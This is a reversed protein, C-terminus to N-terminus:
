KENIKRSYNNEKINKWEHFTIEKQSLISDKPM